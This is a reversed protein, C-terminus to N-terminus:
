GRPRSNPRVLGKLLAFTFNALVFNANTKLVHGAIVACLLTASMQAPADLGWAVEGVGKM